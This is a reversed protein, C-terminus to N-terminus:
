AIVFLTQYFRVPLIAVGRPAEKSIADRNIPIRNQTVKTELQEIIVNTNSFIILCCKQYKQWWSLQKIILNSERILRTILLSQIYIPEKQHLFLTWM